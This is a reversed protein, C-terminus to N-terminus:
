AETVYDGVIRNCVRRDEDQVVLFPRAPITVKKMVRWGIGPINAKLAKAVKPMIAGGLQQIRAYKVNTGITLIKGSVEMTISRMLRATKILTRGGTTKARISPKWKAPRGGAKFTQAISRLLVLGCERLCKDPNDIRDTMRRFRLKMALDNITLKIGFM